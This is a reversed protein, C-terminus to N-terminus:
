GRWSGIGDWVMELNRAAGYVNYSSAFQNHVELMLQFGGIDNLKKGIQVVSIADISGHIFGEGKPSSSYLQILEKILASVVSEENNKETISEVGIDTKGEIENRIEDIKELVSKRHMTWEILESNSLSNKSMLVNTNLNIIFSISLLVMIDVTENFAIKGIIDDIADSSQSPYSKSIRTNKKIFELEVTSFLDLMKVNAMVKGCLSCKETYKGFPIWKHGKDRIEDCRECKCGNWQHGFLCKFNM